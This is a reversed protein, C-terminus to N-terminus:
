GDKEGKKNEAILEKFRDEMVFARTSDILDVYSVLVKANVDLLQHLKFKGWNGAFYIRM